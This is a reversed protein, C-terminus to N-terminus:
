GARRAQRPRAATLVEMLAQYHHEFTWGQAADRAAAACQERRRPDALAGLRSALCAHDHPDPIVYGEACAGDPGARRLLEAAGNHRSTLVPLGCALAELVVNSCPDYFTPHVLFDAAFYVGRMDAHYGVFRVRDALGLQRALRRFSGTEPAGAVVLALSKEPCAALAHLLPVLGKLRHNMSVFLAVVGGEDLGWRRRFDARRGARDPEALREPPPAIPLRRVRAPDVGNAELHRRVMDSIAVVVAGPRRYQERELLLYSLHVPEFWKLSRLFGRLLPSRHKGLSLAVSADYMGGQPYYVDVGAIKDFGVSVDHRASDLMRRCARSFMWPRVFRPLPPLHVKHCSLRGPLADPDWECAYLHVAHGDLVLRRALSAIYTECGGRRPLVSTHCLAIKM